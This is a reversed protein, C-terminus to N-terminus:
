ETFALPLRFYELHQSLSCVFNMEQSGSLRPEQVWSLMLRKSFRSKPMRAVHGVWLLTRSAVYHQQQLGKSTIRHAM